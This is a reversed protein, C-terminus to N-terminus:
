DHLEFHVNEGHPAKVESSICWIVPYEPSSGFDTYGDTLCIFAAPEIGNKAVWDFGAPMHTGGGSYFSIGVEEGQDFTEHKQVQTDTYIVHVKEPRTQEIIRKMHGNYHEIERKSVSGSIDVQIVIEGMAAQSQISPLYIDQALYRRNPKAWSQDYHAKETMWRELIDFWPVKSEIAEAVIKALVGPLKGKMKAAQAAEAVDIKIRAEIESKESESLPKGEEIMDEGIGDGAMPNQGKGDGQGQGQGQQGKGKGKGFCQQPPPLKDYINEVTEQASGKIDVCDPIRQGINCQDLTDNIWADGAFNWKQHDRRNRRTMHQGVKHLVEHCLGWVIQPVPLSEIFDPNYYIQGRQDIALTPIDKRAEIPYKLLISAFFPHDLVIQAKAKELKTVQRAM